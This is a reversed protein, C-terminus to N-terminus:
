AATVGGRPGRPRRDPEAPVLLARTRRLTMGEESDRVVAAVAVHRWRAATVLVLRAGDPGVHWARDGPRLRWGLAVAVAASVPRWRRRLPPVAALTAVLVAA